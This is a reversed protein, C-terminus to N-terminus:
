GEGCVWRTGREALPAQKKQTLGFRFSGIFFTIKGPARRTLDREQSGTENLTFAGWVRDGQWKAEWATKVKEEEEVEPKWELLAEANTGGEARFM